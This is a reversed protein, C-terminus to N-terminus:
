TSLKGLVRLCFGLISSLCFHFWRRENRAILVCYERLIFTINQREQFIIGM